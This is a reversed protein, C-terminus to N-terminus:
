KSVKLLESGPEAEGSCALEVGAFDDSNTIVTIVTSPHGADQIKQLDMTLVLQGKQVKDGVQVRPSFGDGNMEVTDVGVHILIEIEGPGAFGLAHHSDAVQTVKGDVPAYINGEVPEIGCCVGLVGESFVPDPIENMKLVKGKAPAAVVVPWEAPISGSTESNKKFRDFLGM